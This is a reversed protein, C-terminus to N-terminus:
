VNELTLVGMAALVRYISLYYDFKASAADIRARYLENEADLVNLATESGADRLKKRADYVEGAINVANELLEARQRSTEMSSWALRVEEIAKRQAQLLNSKASEKDHVARSSRAKDAFGSFLQWNAQLKVSYKTEEGLTASANNDYSSNGVLDVTPYFGGQATQISAEAIDVGLQAAKVQPNYALAIEVAQEVGEPLKDLPLTSISLGNVDPARDFVQTYRSVADQLAGEFATSREHAIQLRSKAQLVDVAVGSGRQVREDELNLQTRLTEQNDKSLLILTRQRLVEIYANVAEQLIQQNTLNLTVEALEHGIEASDLASESRFGNFLNQTVNLTVNDTALRTRAGPTPDYQTKDDSEMGTNGSFDVTPMYGARAETITDEASLLAQQAAKVQPHQELLSELEKDMPQASLATSAFLLGASVSISLLTRM